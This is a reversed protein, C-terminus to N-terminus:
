EELSENAKIAIALWKWAEPDPTVPSRSPEVTPRRTSRKLPSEEDDSFALPLLGINAASLALMAYNM